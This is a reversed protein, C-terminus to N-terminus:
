QTSRSPSPFTSNNMLFSLVYIFTTGSSYFNPSFETYLRRLGNPSFSSKCVTFRSYKVYHLESNPWFLSYYIILLSNFVTVNWYESRIILKWIHFTFQLWNVTFLQIQVSYHITFQLFHTTLLKCNVLRGSYHITFQSNITFQVRNVIQHITFQSYHMSFLLCNM